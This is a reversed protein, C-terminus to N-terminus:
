KLAMVTQSKVSYTVLEWDFNTPENAATDWPPSPHGSPAGCVFSIAEFAWRAGPEMRDFVRGAAWTVDDNLLVRTSDYVMLHIEPNPIATHGDNHITGLVKLIGYEYTVRNVELTVFEYEAPTTPAAPTAPVDPKPVGPSRESCGSCIVALLVAIVLILMHSRRWKKVLIGGQQDDGGAM